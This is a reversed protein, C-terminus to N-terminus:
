MVSGNEVGQLNAVGIKLHRIYVRQLEMMMSGFTSHSEVIMVIRVGVM